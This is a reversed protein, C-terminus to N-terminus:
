EVIIKGTMSPHISCSYDFTGTSNFTFSFTQGKSLQGSNFTASKIQHPASDSNTWTVTAGKKVNLTGPNFAFGQINISNAESVAAPPQQSQSTASPKSSPSNSSNNQGSSTGCGGLLLAAAIVVFGSFLKKM